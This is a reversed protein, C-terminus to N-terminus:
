RNVSPCLLQEKYTQASQQEIFYDCIVEAASQSDAQCFSASMKKRKDDDLLLSIALTALEEPTNATAASGQQVFFNLNYTECGAVANVFVMPLKKQAAESTSIGGPKTLYLDASDMITAIDKRFGYMHIRPQEAHDRELQKRLKQNTGCIVSVYCNDPLRTALHKVLKRIPGCGMSGSMILLHCGDSPLGLHKRAAAKDPYNFFEQRIPIGSAIQKEKPVGCMAFEERLSSDPIFYVDLESEGCSPSCTYDTAVFGTRLNPHYQRLIDTMMLASFVHACIITDFDQEQIFHYLQDTGSTLMKYISAAEEFMGNHVEAYQYGSRFLGPAYRYIRTHGWSMIKSFSPSVFRLADVMECAIGKAQFADRIAKGCSNHGEGTNCSLILVRM